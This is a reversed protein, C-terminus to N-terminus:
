TSEPAKLIHIARVLQEHFREAAADLTQHPGLISQLDRPLPTSDLRITLLPKKSGNALRIEESVYDSQSSRKSAFLLMYQCDRIRQDLYAHWDAGGPIEEDWWLHFELEILDQLIPLVEDRDDRAYSVFGYLSRGYYPQPAPRVSDPRHTLASLEEWYKESQEKSTLLWKLGAEGSIACALQHYVWTLGFRKDLEVLPPLARQYAYFAITPVEMQAWYDDLGPISPPETMWAFADRAAAIAKSRREAESPEVKLPLPYVFVERGVIKKTIWRALEATANFSEPDLTFCPVVADTKRLPFVIADNVRRCAPCDVLIHDYHSSLHEFLTSLFSNGELIDFFERWSFYRVRLSRKPERGATILHLVGTAQVSSDNPIVLEHPTFKTIRRQLDNLDSAPARRATLAYEWLLDILGPKPSSTDHRLFPAYYKPLSPEELDWDIAVVRRGNTALLWAVSALAMSQGIGPRDSCFAVLKIPQKM